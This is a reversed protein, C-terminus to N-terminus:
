IHVWIRKKDDSEPDEPIWKKFENNFNSKNGLVKKAFCMALGKEPDYTDGPQCKVVTKTGDNWFVITAPDNFIVKKPKRRETEEFLNRAMWDAMLMTKGNGRAAIFMQNNSISECLSRDPMNVHVPITFDVPINEIYEQIMKMDEYDIHGCPHVPIIQIHAIDGQVRQTEVIFEKIRYKGM